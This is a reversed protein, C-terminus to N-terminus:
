PARRRKIKAIEAYRLVSGKATSKATGKLPFKLLDKTNIVKRESVSDDPRGKGAGDVPPWMWDPIDQRYLVEITPRAGRPEIVL